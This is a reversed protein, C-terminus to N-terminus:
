AARGSGASAPLSFGADAFDMADHRSWAVSRAEVVVLLDDGGLITKVRKCLQDASGPYEVWWVSVLLRGRMSAYRTLHTEVEHLSPSPGTLDCMVIFNAM